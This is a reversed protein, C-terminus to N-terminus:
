DNSCHTMHEGASSTQDSSIGILLFVLFIYIYKSHVAQCLDLNHGDLRSHDLDLM